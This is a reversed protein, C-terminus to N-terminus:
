DCLVQSEHQHFAPTATAQLALLSVASLNQQLLPDQTFNFLPANLQRHQVQASGVAAHERMQALEARQSELLRELEPEMAQARVM